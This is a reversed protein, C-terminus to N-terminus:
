EFFVAYLYLIILLIYLTFSLLLIVYHTNQRHSSWLGLSMFLPIIVMSYRLSSTLSTSIAVVYSLAAFLGYSSGLRRWTWILLPIILLTVGVNLAATLSITGGTVITEFFTRIEGIAVAFPMDIMRGWSTQVSRFLWLDGFSRQLYVMQSLLGFPILGIALVTPFSERLGQLLGRWADLHLIRRLTWGYSRAWELAVFFFIAVGVVRTASCIIGFAISMGWWRRRAAYLAVALIFLYLSETYILSFFLAAPHFAIYLVTHQAANPDNPAEFLTLRYIFILAMFFALNSVVLGANVGGGFLPSLANILIPLVPFFVVTSQSEAVYRYGNEAITLYWGGDWQYWISQDIAPSLLTSNVLVVILIFVLRSLLFIL